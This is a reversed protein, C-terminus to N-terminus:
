SEVEIIQEAVETLSSAVVDPQEDLKSLAMNQRAVFAAKCGARMAGTTDWNHCAIMRMQATTIGIKEAGMEYVKHHPKFLRVEDVSLIHEFYTNIGANSLQANLIRYPSNTLAVLRFEAEKLKTLAPVVDDHPSLNRMVDLIIEGDDAALSIGQKKALLELADVALEGFDHYSNTITAIWSNQTLQAFWKSLITEDNFIRTFEPKFSALNLLTENVDFVLVSKM